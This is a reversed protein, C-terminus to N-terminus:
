KAVRVVLLVSQGPALGTPAGGIVITEGPKATVKTEVSFIGTQVGEKTERQVIARNLGATASVAMRVEGGDDVQEIQGSVDAQIRDSSGGRVKYYGGEIAATSMRALLSLKGFRSLEPELAALDDPLKGAGASADLDASLFDFEIRVSRAPTDIQRIVEEIEKLQESSQCKIILCSRSEDAGIRFLDSQGTVGLIQQTVDRASRHQVPIITLSSRESEEGTVDLEQIMAEVLRVARPTGHVVVSNTHQAAMVAGGPDLSRIIGTVYNCEAHKLPFSRIQSIEDATMERHSGSDPTGGRGRPPSNADQGSAALTASLLFVAQLIYPMKQM